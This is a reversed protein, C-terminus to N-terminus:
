RLQLRPDLVRYLFDIALNVLVILGAMFFVVAQVVPFDRQSIADVVLRGVGPWAFVTETIISGGVLYAADFGLVTLLALAVNKLAHRSVVHRERLGKARATRVYDHSLAELMESRTVRSLRSVSYASLTLAPLVLHDLGGRGSTPLWRLQVSVLLILMIGLWFHPIAQGALTGISALQDVWSNPRTASVIGIPIGICGILVFTAAALELTAPFRELVVQAASSKYVFSQGFDGKVIGSLFIAYQVPVPQDLGFVERLRLYDAQTSGPAVMLRAPDGTLRLLVFVLVSVGLMAILGGLVRQVLYQTV